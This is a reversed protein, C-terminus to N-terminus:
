NRNGDKWNRPQTNPASSVCFVVCCWMMLVRRGWWPMVGRDIRGRIGRYLAGGGILSGEGHCRRLDWRQELEEDGSCPLPVRRHAAEAHGHCARSKLGQCPGEGRTRGGVGCGCAGDEGGGTSNHPGDEGGWTLEESGAHFGETKSPEQPAATANISSDLTKM